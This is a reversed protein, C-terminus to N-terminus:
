FVDIKSFDGFVYGPRMIDIFKDYGQSNSFRQMLIKIKSRIMCADFAMLIRSM